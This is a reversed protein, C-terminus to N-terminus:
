SPQSHKVIVRSDVNLCAGAAVATRAEAAFRVHRPAAGVAAVASAASLHHEHTVIRQAVQLLEPALGVIAGPPAPV